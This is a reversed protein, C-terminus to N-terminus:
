DQYLNGGFPGVLWSPKVIRALACTLRQVSYTTAGVASLSMIPPILSPTSQPLTVHITERQITVYRYYNILIVVPRLNCCAGVWTHPKASQRTTTAESKDDRCSARCKIDARLSNAFFDFPLPFFIGDMCSM